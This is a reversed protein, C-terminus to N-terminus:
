DTKNSDEGKKPPKLNKHVIVLEPNGNGGGLRIITNNDKKLGELKKIFEDISNDGLTLQMNQM